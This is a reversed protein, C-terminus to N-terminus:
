GKQMAQCRYGASACAVGGICRWGEKLKTNVQRAMSTSNTADLVIYEPAIAAQFKAVVSKKVQRFRAM